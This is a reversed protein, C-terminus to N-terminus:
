GATWLYLVFFIKKHATFTPFYMGDKKYTAVTSLQPLPIWSIEPAGNIMCFNLTPVLSGEGVEGGVGCKRVGPTAVISFHM